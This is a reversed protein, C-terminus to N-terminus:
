RLSSPATKAVPKSTSRFPFECVKQTYGFFFRPKVGEIRVLVRAKENLRYEVFTRGQYQRWGNGRTKRWDDDTLSQFPVRIIDVPTMANGTLEYCHGMVGPEVHNLVAAKFAAWTSFLTINFNFKVIAQDYARTDPGEELEEREEAATLSLIMFLLFGVM